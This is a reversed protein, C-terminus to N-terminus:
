QDAAPLIASFVSGVGPESEISLRGRHRAVIHKVIALGLGTGGVERSRHNDVRYFRETLRPVHHAAIGPGQDRVSVRIGRGRISPEERAESVSVVVPGSPAYRLANELLNSLVQELQGQNGTVVASGPLKLVIRDAGVDPRDLFTRRVQHALPVLNVTGRPRSRGEAEVRGLSLLDTVLRAMREAERAMSALFRERAVPDDRAPGRLTEIYGALATIPTKLEHSVNAVFDRRVQGIEDGLSRDEFVLLTGGGEMPCASVHWSVDRGAEQSVFPAGGARGALAEEVADLLRPQRLVAVHHQGAAGRGVLGEAGDNLFAVRGARDLLIVPNPFARM